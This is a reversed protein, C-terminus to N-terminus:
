KARKIRLELDAIWGEIEQSPKDALKQCLRYQELADAPRSLYLDYLIGLNRHALLYVPELKLATQYAQEADQFRGQMRLSVGLQHHAQASEPNLEVAKRFAGEAAAPNNEKLQIIGLNTYPGALSPYEAALKEFQQKARETEGQRLSQLATDYARQVETGVAKDTATAGTQKASDQLSSCAGLFLVSFLLLWPTKISSM